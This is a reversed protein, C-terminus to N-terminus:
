LANSQGRLDVKLLIRKVVPAGNADRRVNPAKHTLGEHGRVGRIRPWRSGKMLVVANAPAVVVDEFRPVIAPDSFAPPAGITRRFASYDVAEDPALWTGPGCYTVLARGAYNDQHWRSCANRGVIEIQLTLHPVGPCCEMMLAALAEADSRLAERFKGAPAHSALRACARSIEAPGAIEAHQHPHAHSHADGCPHSPDECGEVRAVVLDERAFCGRGDERQNRVWSSM